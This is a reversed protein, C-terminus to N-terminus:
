NDLEAAEKSDIDTLGLTLSGLSQLKCDWSPVQAKHGRGKSSNHLNTILTLLNSPNNNVTAEVLGEMM